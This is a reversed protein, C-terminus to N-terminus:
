LESNKPSHGTTAAGKELGICEFDLMKENYFPGNKLNGIKGITFDVIKINLVLFLFMAGVCDGVCGKM